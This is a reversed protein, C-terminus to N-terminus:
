TALYSNLLAIFTFGVCASFFQLIGAYRRESKHWRARERPLIESVTVYLLTGGALGQLFPFAFDMWSKDLRLTIMGIGIGIASGISFFFIALLLRCLSSNAGALELGLCFGVVFKHSSVAGVLLLVESMAKQLGIALGELISHVTLALLLGMLNTNSEQCPESHNVHCLFTAEENFCPPANPAYQTMGYTSNKWGSHTGHGDLNTQYLSKPNVEPGHVSGITRTPAGYSCDLIGNELQGYYLNILLFGSKKSHRFSIVEPLTGKRSHKLPLYTNVSPLRPSVDHGKPFINKPKPPRIAY